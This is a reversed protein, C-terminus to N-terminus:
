ECEEETQATSTRGDPEERDASSLVGHAFDQLSLEGFDYDQVLALPRKSVGKDTQQGDQVAEGILSKGIVTELARLPDTFEEPPSVQRKLISGNPLKSPNVSTTSVNAKPNLGLSSKRPGYPPRSIVGPGLGGPRRPAPSYSRKHPPPPPGSPTSNGSLRDIWM